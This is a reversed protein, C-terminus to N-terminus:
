RSFTRANGVHVWHRLTTSVVEAWFKLGSGAIAPLLHEVVFKKIVRHVTESFRTESLGLVSFFLEWVLEKTPDALSEVFRRVPSAVHPWVREHQVLAGFMGALNGQEGSPGLM